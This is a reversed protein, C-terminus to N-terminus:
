RERRTRQRSVTVRLGAVVGEALAECDIKAEEELIAPLTAATAPKEPGLVDCIEPGKSIEYTGLRKAIAIIEQKDLGIIPRLVPISAVSDIVTLNQLTQSSVQGLNEGTVLFGYGDRRAIKEAVRVMFRKSLVFYYRRASKSALKALADGARAVYVKNLGLVEALRICKKEAADDTIPELSFHIADIELGQEKMLHGAVPSDFGGSLLLLGKGGKANMKAKGTMM